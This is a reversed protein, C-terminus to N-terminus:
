SFRRRRATCKSSCRASSIRAGSKRRDSKPGSSDLHRMKGRGAPDSGPFECKEMEMVFSFVDGGKGCGFCHYIQRTPHVNFSPTKESHFPCLGRFNQGAKKLQVYEGVVRVIDAQQKVRDAFSGAEALKNRDRGRKSARSSTSTSPPSSLTSPAAFISRWTIRTHLTASRLNTRRFRWMPGCKRSSIADGHSAFVLADIPARRCEKPAIWGALDELTLGFVVGWVADSPASLLSGVGGQRRDSYRPFWLRWGDARAVFPQFLEKSNPCRESMQALDMNSGYTFVFETPTM